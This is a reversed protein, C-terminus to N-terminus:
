LYKQFFYYNSWLEIKEIIVAPNRTSVVELPKEWNCNKVLFLKYTGNIDGYWGLDIVLNFRSNSLQLLDETFYADFNSCNNPDCQYFGNFEVTWGALLRLPQIEFQEYM